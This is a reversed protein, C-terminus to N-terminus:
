RGADLTAMWIDAQQRTAAVYLTRNDPSIALFAGLSLGSAMVKRRGSDVDLVALEGQAPRSYVVRRSDQLWTLSAFTVAEQTVHRVTRSAVDAIGIGVLGGAGNAIGGAWRRGDPSWLYPVLWSNDPL